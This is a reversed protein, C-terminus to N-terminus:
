RWYGRRFQWGNRYPTWAGPVWVARVRPPKAWHGPVWVWNRGGRLDYFGECYVWGPRPAVGMAYRPPPPPPPVRYAYARPAACASASVALFMASCLLLRKM